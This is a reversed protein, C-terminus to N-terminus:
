DENKPANKPAKWNPDIINRGEDYGIIRINLENAVEEIFQKNDMLENYCYEWSIETSNSDYCVNYGAKEFLMVTGASLRQYVFAETRENEKAAQIAENAMLIENELSKRITDRSVADASQIEVM